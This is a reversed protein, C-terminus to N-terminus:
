QLRRNKFKRARQVLKLGHRECFALLQKYRPQPSILIGQDFTGDTMPAPDTGVPFWWTEFGFRSDTFLLYGGKLEEKSLQDLGKARGREVLRQRHARGRLIQVPISFLIFAAWVMGLSM